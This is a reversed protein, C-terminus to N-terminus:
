KGVGTSLAAIIQEPTLGMKSLKTILDTAMAAPDKEKIGKKALEKAERKERQEQSEGPKQVKIGALKRYREQNRETREQILIDVNCRHLEIAAEIDADSMEMILHSLFLWDNGVLRLRRALFKRVFITTGDPKQHEVTKELLTEVLKIEAVCNGCYNYDFVSAFHKCYVIKCKKCVKTEDKADCLPCIPISDQTYKGM